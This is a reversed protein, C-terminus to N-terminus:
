PCQWDDRMYRLSVTCITMQPSETPPSLASQSPLTSLASGVESSQERAANPTPTLNYGCQKRICVRKLSTSVTEAQKQTARMFSAMVSTSWIRARYRTIQYNTPMCLNCPQCCGSHQTCPPNKETCPELHLPMTDLPFCIRPHVECHRMPWQCWTM